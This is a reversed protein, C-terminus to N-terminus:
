NGARVFWRDDGDKRWSCHIVIRGLRTEIPFYLTGKEFSSYGPAYCIVRADLHAVWEWAQQEPLAEPFTLLWREGPQIAFAPKRGPVMKITKTEVFVGDRELTVSVDFGARLEEVKAKAADTAAIDAKWQKMVRDQVRRRINLFRIAEPHDFHCDDYPGVMQTAQECLYMAYKLPFEAGTCDGVPFDEIQQLEHIVTATFDLLRKMVDLTKVEVEHLKRPTSRGLSQELKWRSCRYIEAAVTVLAATEDLGPASHRTRNRQFSGFSQEAASLLHELAMDPRNNVNFLQRINHLMENTDRWIRFEINM